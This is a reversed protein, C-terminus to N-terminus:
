GGVICFALSVGLSVGLLVSDKQEVLQNEGM